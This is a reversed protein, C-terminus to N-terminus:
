APEDGRVIVHRLLGEAPFIATGLDNREYGMDVELGRAYARKVAPREAIAEVWRSVKPYRDIGDKPEMYIAWPFCAMDAISYDGALYPRDSLRDEMVRWLGSWIKSFRTLAYSHDMDPAIRPAWKTFHWQQGGMPGLGAMQWYLWQKVEYRARLDRPMFSATKEALYELIAGSEFIVMPEGGDVPDNDRIVPLKPSAAYGINEPKLHEGQSIDVPCMAYALGMEELAISIKYVNPSTTFFLDIM